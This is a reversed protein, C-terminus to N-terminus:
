NFPWFWFKSFRSEQYLGSSWSIPEQTLFQSLCFLLFLPPGKPAIPTGRKMGNDLLPGIIHDIFCCESLLYYYFGIKISTLDTAWHYTRSSGNLLGQNSGQTSRPVNVLHYQHYQPNNYPNNMHDKNSLISLVLAVDLQTWFRM